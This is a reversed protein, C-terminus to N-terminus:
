LGRVQVGAGCLKGMDDEDSTFVVVRGRQRGAIVALAADIAYKHSERPCLDLMGQM